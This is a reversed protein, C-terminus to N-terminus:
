GLTEGVYRDKLLLLVYKFYHYFIREFEYDDNDVELQNYLDDVIYNPYGQDEFQIFVDM